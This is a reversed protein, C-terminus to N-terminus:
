FYGVKTKAYDNGLLYINGMATSCLVSAENSAKTKEQLKELFEIADKPDLFKKRKNRIECIGSVFFFKFCKM